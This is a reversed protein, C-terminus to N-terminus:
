GGEGLAPGAVGWAWPMLSGTVSTHGAAWVLARFREGPGGETRGQREGVHSRDSQGAGEAARGDGCGEELKLTKTAPMSLPDPSPGHRNLAALATADRLM